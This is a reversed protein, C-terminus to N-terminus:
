ETVEVADAEPDDAGVADMTAEVLAADDTWVMWVVDGAPFMHLVPAAESATDSMLTVQRGGIVGEDVQPQAVSMSLIEVWADMTRAAEVDAIRHAQIDVLRTGNLRLYTAAAAYDAVTLGSAELLERLVTAEQPQMVEVMQEGTALQLNERLPLGVLAPPVLAELAGLRPDDAVITAEPAGSEDAEDQATVPGGWLLLAGALGLTPLLRLRTM